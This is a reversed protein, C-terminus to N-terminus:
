LSSLASRGSLLITELSFMLSAALLEENGPGNKSSM